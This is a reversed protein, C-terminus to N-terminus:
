EEPPVGGDTVEMAAPMVGDAATVQGCLPSGDNAMSRCGDASAWPWGGDAQKVRDDPPVGGDTLEMVAPMAGVTAKAQSQLPPGDGVTLLRRDDSALPLGGDAQKM